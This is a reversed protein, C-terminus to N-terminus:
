KHGPMLFYSPSKHACFVGRWMIKNIEVETYALYTRDIAIFLGNNATVTFFNWLWGVCRKKLSVTYM